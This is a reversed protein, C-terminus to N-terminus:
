AAQRAPIKAKPDGWYRDFTSVEVGKIGKNHHLFTIRGFLFERSFDVGVSPLPISGQGLISDMARDAPIKQVLERERRLEKFEALKRELQRQAKTQQLALNLLDKSCVQQLHGDEVLRRDAPDTIAEFMDAMEFRAKALIATEAYAVRRLKWTLDVVEQIVSKEIASGPKYHGFVIGACEEFDAINEHPLLRKTSTLGHKLSNMSSTAKTEPTLPGHSKAGNIKSANSQAESSM